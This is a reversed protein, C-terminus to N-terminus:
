QAINGQCNYLEKMLEGTGMSNRNKTGDSFPLRIDHNIYRKAIGVFHSIIPWYHFRGAAPKQIIKTNQAFRHCQDGAWPM